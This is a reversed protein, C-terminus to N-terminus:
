LAPMPPKRRPRAAPTRQEGPEAPHERLTVIIHDPHDVPAFAMFHMQVDGRREDRLLCLHGTARRVDYSKWLGDFDSNEARLAAILEDSDEGGYPINTARFVGIMRRLTNYWDGFTGRMRESRVMLALMNREDEAYRSFAFLADAHANWAMVHSRSDTLFAAGDSYGRVFDRLEYGPRVPIVSQADTERALALAHEAEVPSLRLARIVRRLTKSSIQDIRGQELLTYWSVGIQALQAVEERRLGPVHRRKREPLGVDQPAILARRARLFAGLQIHRSRTLADRDDTAPM